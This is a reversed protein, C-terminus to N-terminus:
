AACGTGRSSGTQGIGYCRAGATVGNESGRGQGPEGGPLPRAM